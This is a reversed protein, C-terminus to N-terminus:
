SAQHRWDTKKVAEMADREPKASGTPLNQQLLWGIKKQYLMEEAPYPWREKSGYKRRMYAEAEPLAKTLSLRAKLLKDVATEYAKQEVSKKSKNRGFISSLLLAICFIILYVTFKM